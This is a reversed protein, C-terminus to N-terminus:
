EARPRTGESPAHAREEGSVGAREIPAVFADAVQKLVAVLGDHHFFFGVQEFQDAVDVQVGEARLHDGVEPRQLAVGPRAV